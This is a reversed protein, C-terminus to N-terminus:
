RPRSPPLSPSMAGMGFTVVHAAIQHSVGVVKEPAFDKVIAKTM